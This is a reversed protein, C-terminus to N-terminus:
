LGVVSALLPGATSFRNYVFYVSNCYKCLYELVARNGRNRTFTLRYLERDSFIPHIDIRIKKKLSPAVPRCSQLKCTNGRRWSYEQANLWVLQQSHFLICVNKKCVHVTGHTYVNYKLLIGVDILFSIRIKHFNCINLILSLLVLCAGLMKKKM